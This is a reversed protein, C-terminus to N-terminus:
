STYELMVVRELQVARASVTAAAVAAHVTTAGGVVDM